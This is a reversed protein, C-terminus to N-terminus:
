KTRHLKLIVQETLRILCFLIVWRLTGNVVDFSTVFFVFVNNYGGSIKTHCKTKIKVKKGECDNTDNSREVLKQDSKPLSFHHKEDVDVVGSELKCRHKTDM